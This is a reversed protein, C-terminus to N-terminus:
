NAKTWAKLISFIRHSSSVAAFECQAVTTNDCNNLQYHGKGNFLKKPSVIAQKITMREEQTYNNNVLHKKEVFAQISFQKKYVAIGQANSLGNALHHKSDKILSNLEDGKFQCFNVL